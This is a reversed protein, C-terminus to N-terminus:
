MLKICRRENPSQPTTGSTSLPRHAILLVHDNDVGATFLVNTAKGATVRTLPLCEDVEIVALIHATPHLVDHTFHAKLINLSKSLFDFDLRVGNTACKVAIFHWHWVRHHFNCVLESDLEGLYM